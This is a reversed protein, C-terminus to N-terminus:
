NTSVGAAMQVVQERTLDKPAQLTVYQGEGHPVQLFWGRTGEMLEGKRDGVTVSTVPGQDEMRSPVIPEYPRGYLAVTIRRADAGTEAGDSMALVAGAPQLIKYAILDWGEPAFALRMDLPLAKETVNAAQTLVAQDDAFRGRGILSVRTGSQMQWSVTSQDRASGPLDRVYLRGPQGQVRVRRESTAESDEAAGDPASLSLVPKRSEGKNDEEWYMAILRGHDYNFSLEVGGPLPDLSVPLAPLSYAVLRVPPPGAPPATISVGVALASLGAVALYATRTARRARRVRNGRRIVEAAPDALVLDSYAAQLSERVDLDNM